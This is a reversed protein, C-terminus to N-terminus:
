IGRKKASFSELAEQRIPSPDCWQDFAMFWAKSHRILLVAAFAALPLVCFLIQRLSWDTFFDFIFYLGAGMIAIMGYNIAWIAMLFYGPEREYAYGCRPCGDLPTFWDYLSRTKFVSLFIPRQGCHPCRWFTARWFM